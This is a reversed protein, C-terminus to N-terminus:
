LRMTKQHEEQEKDRVRYWSQVFTLAADTLRSVNAAQHPRSLVSVIRADWDLTGADWRAHQLPGTQACTGWCTSDGRSKLVFRM